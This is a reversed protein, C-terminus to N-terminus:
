FSCSTAAGIFNSGGKINNYADVTAFVGSRHWIYTELYCDELAMIGFTDGLNAGISIGLFNMFKSTRGENDAATEMGEYHPVRESYSQGETFTFRIRKGYVKFIRQYEVGVMYSQFEVQEGEVEEQHHNLGAKILLKHKGETGQFIFRGIEVGDVTSHPRQVEWKEGILLEGLNADAYHAKFYRVQWKKAADSQSEASEKSILKISTVGFQTEVMDEANNSGYIEEQNLIHTEIILCADEQCVQDYYEQEGAPQQRYKEVLAAIEFQDVQFTNNRKIIYPEHDYALAHELAYADDFRLTEDGHPAKAVATFHSFLISIILLYAKM